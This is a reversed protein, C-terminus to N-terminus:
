ALGALKFDTKLEMLEYGVKRKEESQKIKNHMMEIQVVMKKAEPLNRAEIMQRAHNIMEYVEPNKPMEKQMVVDGEEHRLEEDVLTDVIGGRLEERMKQLQMGQVDVDQERIILQKERSKIAGEKKLLNSEFDKLIERKALAEENIKLVDKQLKTKATKLRNIDVKLEKVNSIKLEKDRVEREKRDLKSAILDAEKELKQITVEREKLSCEVKELENIKGIIEEEKEELMKSDKILELAKQSVDSEKRNLERTNEELVTSLKDLEMKGKSIKKLSEELEGHKLQFASALGEMKRRSELIEREMVAKEERLSSLEKKIGRERDLWLVERQVLEKEKSQLDKKELSMSKIESFLAKEQGMLKKKFNEIKTKETNLARERPAITKEKQALEELLSKSRIQDERIGTEINDKEQELKEIETKYQSIRKEWSGEKKQINSEKIALESEKQSIIREKEQLEIKKTKLV